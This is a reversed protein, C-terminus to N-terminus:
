FIIDRFIAGLMSMDFEKTTTAQKLAASDTELMTNEFGMASAISVVLLM